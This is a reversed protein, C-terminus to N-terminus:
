EEYKVPFLDYLSNGQSDFAVIKLKYSTVNQWAEYQKILYDRAEVLEYDKFYKLSAGGLYVKYHHTTM